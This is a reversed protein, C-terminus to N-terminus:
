IMSPKSLVRRRARDAVSEAVSFFPSAIKLVSIRNTFKRDPSAAVGAVPRACMHFGEKRVDRVDVSLVSYARAHRQSHQLTM